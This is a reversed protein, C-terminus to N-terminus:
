GLAYSSYLTCHLLRSFRCMHKHCYIESIGFWKRWNFSSGSVLILTAVQILADYRMWMLTSYLATYMYLSTTLSLRGIMGSWWDNWSTATNEFNWTALGCPMVHWHLMCANNGVFWAHRDMDLESDFTVSCVATMSCYEARSYLDRAWDFISLWLAKRGDLLVFQLFVKWLCLCQHVVFNGTQLM